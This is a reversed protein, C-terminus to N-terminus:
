KISIVARRKGNTIRVVYSGKLKTTALHSVRLTRGKLTGTAILKGTRRQLVRVKRAYPSTLSHFLLM